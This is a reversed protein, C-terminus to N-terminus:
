LRTLVFVDQGLTVKDVLSLSFPLQYQSLLKVLAAESVFAEGYMTSQGSTFWVFKGCEFDAMRQEISGAAALCVASYWHITEGAKQQVADHQLRTLFRSGWTTVVCAGGPILIRALENLWLVASSESLHSFVSWSAVLHFFQEPLNGTPVFTGSFFTIYPNLAKAL